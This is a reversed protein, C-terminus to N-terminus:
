ANICLTPMTFSWTIPHKLNAFDYHTTRSLTAHRWREANLMSRGTEGNGLVKEKSGRHYKFKGHM